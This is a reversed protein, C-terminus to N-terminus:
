INIQINISKMINGQWIDIYHEYRLAAIEWGVIRASMVRLVTHQTNNGRYTELIRIHFM